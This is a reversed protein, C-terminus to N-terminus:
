HSGLLDPIPPLTEPQRQSRWINGLSSTGNTADYPLQASNKFDHNFKRDPGVSCMRWDGYYEKAKPWFNSNSYFHCYASLDQYTFMREDIAASTNGLMYVDLYLSTPLYAVPTSICKSFVGNVSAGAVTDLALDHYIDYSAMRPITNHDVSYSDIAASFARLDSVVRAYKARVSADQYNAVAISAVVLIIGSVIMLEVLTFGKRSIM